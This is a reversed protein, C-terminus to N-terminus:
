FMQFTRALSLVILPMSVDSAVWIARFWNHNWSGRSCVCWTSCLLHAPLSNFTELNSDGFDCVQKGLVAWLIINHSSYVLFRTENLVLLAFRGWRYTWRKTSATTDVISSKKRGLLKSRNCVPLLQIGKTEFLWLARSSWDNVVNIHHGYMSSVTTDLM